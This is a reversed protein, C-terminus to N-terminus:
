TGAYLILAAVIVVNFGFHVALVMALVASIVSTCGNVGWVWPILMPSKKSLYSLAVPFPMGMFFALPAILIFTVMIKIVTSSALLWDFLPQLAVSYIVGTVCIVTVALRITSRYGLKDRLFASYHSGAGAFLLFATLTVAISYVPHYLFLTFKQMFAIEVFLFALGLSSFYLLSILTTKDTTLRTEKKFLLPLVILLASFIIAQALTAIMIIYGWEVLPMGGKDKLAVIDEFLDWKFFNFFYPQDDTAPTINFKYQEYFNDANNGTMATAANYFVPERLKNFRNTDSHQIGPFYATDFGMRQCFQQVNSIDQTSLPSHKILLTATQWSRILMVHNEPQEYGLSRLAALGTAFMKLNDRPPLKLWRTISLVGDPTLHRIYETVAEVTYLYNESLAYLGASSAGFTDLLAIQIVDFHQESNSVFGRAEAVHVNVGPKEYLHGAYDAYDTKVLDVITPNLEVADILPVKYAQAQLVDSGTGAGLILVSNAQQLHYPAASTQYQLYEPITNKNNLKNIVTMNDGDSFIALQPPPETTAHLSLGPAHRLPIVNSEVVNILGLPSSRTETIRTGDIRLLQQLSKYPSLSLTLWDAPLLSLVLISAITFVTTARRKYGLEISAVLTTAVAMVSFMQLLHHPMLYFLLIIVLVCGLGAGVLDAAYIAAIRDGKAMMTLAIANAVFFFPLMLLLYILSLWLLQRRDWLIEQANFPVQQALLYCILLSVGFLYINSIFTTKYHKLLRERFLSLFTGSIGYGLLALSIIMYAFHHWQIIAFLRTLLIEFSLAIVSIFAISFLPIKDRLPSAM